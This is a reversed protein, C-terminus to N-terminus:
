PGTASREILEAVAEPQEDVLYHGCNEIVEIMVTVCGHKRLAEAVRPILKGFAHEGGALVIPLNNTDVRASNFRENAPFARYFENGACLQEPTAYANAYRIADGDSIARRNFTGAKFFQERFYILQRGTILKEPLDASARDSAMLVTTNAVDTLKPLCKLLTGGTIGAEFV